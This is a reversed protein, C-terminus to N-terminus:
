FSKVKLFFVGFFSKKDKLVKIIEYGASEVLQSFSEISYKYSSETHITEGVRFNIKKKLIEITQNKKSVLHMEIRSKKNNFFAKHSFNNEEFFTGCIKNVGNLINKNFQATIGKSDNYAREILEIEKKLDVGIVLFNDKELVRSFKKLLERADEPCYNGITSGPFFGIKSKSNDIIKSLDETQDFDACIAKVKLNPFDKASERANKLLFDRSIDIPIYEHPKDLAKLLKKIKKNSGSGFEIVSSSAPLTEFFEKNQDELIEIEKKTPYYDDLNTIRDFLTSGIEDYFYKPSLKKQKKHTLGNIIESKDDKNNKYLDHFTLNSNETMFRRSAKFWLVAM